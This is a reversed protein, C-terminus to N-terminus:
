ATVEIDHQKCIVIITDAMEAGTYHSSDRKLGRAIIIAANYEDKEVLSVVEPPVEGTNDFAQLIREKATPWESEDGEGSWGLKAACAYAITTSYGEGYVADIALRSGIQEIIPSMTGADDAKDCAVAIMCMDEETLKTLKM